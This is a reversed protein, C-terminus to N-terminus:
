ADTFFVEYAGQILPKNTTTDSWAYLTLEVGRYPRATAGDFMARRRIPIELVLHHPTTSIVAASGNWYAAAWQLPCRIERVITFRSRKDYNPIAVDYSGLDSSGIGQFVDTWSPEGSAPENDLVAAINATTFTITTNQYVLLRLVIKEVFIADGLRQYSSTGASVQSIFSYKQYGSAPTGVTAADFFGVGYMRKMEPHLMTTPIRLRIRKEKKGKGKGGSLTVWTSKGGAVLSVQDPVKTEIEDWGSSVDRNDKPHAM